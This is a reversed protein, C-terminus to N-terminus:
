SDRKRKEPLSLSLLRSWGGVSIPSLDDRIAEFDARASSLARHLQVGAVIGHCPLGGEVRRTLPSDAPTETDRLSLPVSFSDKCSMPEEQWCSPFTGPSCSPCRDCPSRMGLDFGLHYGSQSDETYNSSGPAGTFSAKQVISTVHGTGLRQCPCFSHPSSLRHSFGETGM